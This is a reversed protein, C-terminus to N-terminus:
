KQILENIDSFILQAKKTVKGLKGNDTIVACAQSNDVSSFIIQYEPYTLYLTSMEGILRRRNKEIKELIETIIRLNETVKDRNFTQKENVYFINTDSLILIDKIDNDIYSKCKVILKDSSPLSHSEKKQGNGDLTTSVEAQEEAILTNNLKTDLKEITKDVDGRNKKFLKIFTSLIGNHTEMMYGETTNKPKIEFRYLLNNKEIANNYLSFQIISSNKRKRKTQILFTRDLMVIKDEFGSDNQM